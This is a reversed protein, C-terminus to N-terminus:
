ESRSFILLVVCSPPVNSWCVSDEVAVTSRTFEIEGHVPRGEHLVYFRRLADFCVIGLLRTCRASSILDIKSELQGPYCNNIFVIPGASETAIDNNIVIFRGSARIEVLDSLGFCNTRREGQRDRFQAVGHTLRAISEIADEPFVAGEVPVFIRLVELVYVFSDHYVFVDKIMQLTLPQGNNMARTLRHVCRPPRGRGSIGNYYALAERALPLLADDVSILEGAVDHQEDQVGDFKPYIRNSVFFNWNEAFFDSDILDSFDEPPQDGGRALDVSPLGPDARTLGAWVTGCKGVSRHAVEEAHPHIADAANATDAAATADAGSVGLDGLDAGLDADGPDEVRAYNPDVACTM